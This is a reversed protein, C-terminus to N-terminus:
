EQIILKILLFSATFNIYFALKVSFLWAKSFLFIIKMQIFIPLSIKVNALILISFISKVTM